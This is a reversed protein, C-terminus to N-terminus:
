GAPCFLHACFHHGVLLAHKHQELGDHVILQCCRQLWIELLLCAEVPLLQQLHGSWGQHSVKHIALAIILHSVALELDSRTWLWVYRLVCMLTMLPDLRLSAHSMVVSM